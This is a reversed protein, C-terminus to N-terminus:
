HSDEAEEACKGASLHSDEAFDFSVTTGGISSIKQTIDDTAEM